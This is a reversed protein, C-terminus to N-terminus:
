ELADVRWSSDEMVLRASKGEAVRLTAVEGRQSPAAGSRLLARVREVADRGVAGSDALDGALRTPTSRARWRASLLSYAEDWRGDAVAETFRSLVSAPGRGAGEPATRAAPAACALALTM